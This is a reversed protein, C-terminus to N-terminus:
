LSIPFSGNRMALMVLMAATSQYYKSFTSLLIMLLFIFVWKANLLIDDRASFFNPNTLTTRKPLEKSFLTYSIKLLYTRKSDTDILM